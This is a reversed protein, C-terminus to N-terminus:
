RAEGTPGDVVECAYGASKATNMALTNAQSNGWRLMDQLSANPPLASLPQHAKIWKSKIQCGSVQLHSAEERLKREWFQHANTAVSDDTRLVSTQIAQVVTLNDSILLASSARNLMRLAQSAALLEALLSSSYPLYGCARRVSVIKGYEIHVGVVAWAASHDSLHSGDTFLYIDPHKERGAL